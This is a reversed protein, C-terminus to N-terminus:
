REIEYENRVKANIRGWQSREITGPMDLKKDRYELYKDMANNTAEHFNPKKPDTPHLKFHDPTLM